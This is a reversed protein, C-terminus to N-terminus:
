LQHALIVHLVVLVSLVLLPLFGRLLQGPLWSGPPTPLGFFYRLSGSKTILYSLGITPVLTLILMVPFTRLYPVWLAGAAIPVIVQQHILYFPMAMTRLKKHWDRPITINKRALATSGALFLWGGVRKMLSMLIAFIDIHEADVSLHFFYQVPGIALCFFTGAVLCTWSWARSDQRIEKDAAATGYGLLFIALYPFFPFARSFGQTSYASPSLLYLVYFFVDHATQVLGILIGPILALKIPGGLLWKVSSVFVEPSVFVPRFIINLWILLQRCCGANYSSRSLTNTASTEHAPHFAIFWYTFFQAFIILYSLFWAQRPNPISYFGRVYELYPNEIPTERPAFYGLTLPFQTVLSLFLTPVLLRHLREVRFQIGSRRFLAFYANQGSLYFFMPMQWADMFSVFLPSFWGLSIVTFPMESWSSTERTINPYQLKHWNAYPTFILTFHFLFIGFTLAIIIVDIDARRNSPSDIKKTNEAVEAKDAEVAQCDSINLKLSNKSLEECKDM